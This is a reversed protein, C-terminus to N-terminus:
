RVLGGISDRAAAKGQGVPPIRFHHAPHLPQAAFLDALLSEVAQHSNIALGKSSNLWIQLILFAKAELEDPYDQVIQELARVLDRRRSKEEKKGDAYFAALGDIWLQERPSATAKRAVAQEIFKKARKDNNVNAMAM